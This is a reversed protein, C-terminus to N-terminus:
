DQDFLAELDEAQPQAPQDLQGPFDYGPEGPLRNEKDAVLIWYYRTGPEQTEIYNNFKERLSLATAESFRRIKMRLREKTETITITELDFGDMLDNLTKGDKLLGTTEDLIQYILNNESPLRMFFCIPAGDKDKLAVTYGWSSNISTDEQFTRISCGTVKIRVLEGLELNRYIDTM